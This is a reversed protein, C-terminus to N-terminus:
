GFTFSYVEMGPSVELTLLENALGGSRVTYLRYSDVTVDQAGDHAIARITGGSRAGPGAVIFVKSARFRLFIKANRGAISRQGTVTWEGDYSWQDPDLTPAEYTRTADSALDPDGAFREARDSGLYTEPTLAEVKDQNRGKATASMGLLTRMENETRVYEGEGFHTSRIHGAKDILYHAPWYSNYYNHWTKMDPDLAVPYKIGFSKVARGVNGRDKEFAFEPSHVGVIVLGDSRYKADWAKLRPLTRICNICSYTWFDVLVVKGRLSRMTLPDSNFWASIGKFGPAPGLDSLKDREPYGSLALDRKSITTASTKKTLADRELTATPTSDLNVARAVFANVRDLGGFAILVATLLLIVGMPALVRRGGGLARRLWSSLKQGGFIVLALPGVMGLAYGAMTLVIRSSFRTSAAAVTIGALIPGACPAWVIGLPMGSAFGSWFGTGTTKAQPVRSTLRSVWAAFASELRPVVLVIGAVAISAAAIYRLTNAPLGLHSFVGALVVALVFFSLEIGLAIGWVRARGEGRSVVLIAPLLPLVCPTLVSAAGGLVAILFLVM